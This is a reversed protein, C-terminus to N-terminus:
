RREEGGVIRVLSPSSTKIRGRVRNARLETAVGDTSGSRCERRTGSTTSAFAGFTTGGSNSGRHPIFVVRPMLHRADHNRDPILGPIM